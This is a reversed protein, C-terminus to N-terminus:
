LRTSKRDTEYGSWAPELDLDPRMGAFHTLLNRATTDTKGGQFEPLYATVPDAIRLKGQEVLKAISPTCAVVKTLSAADFITDVTMAERAPVLARNGYAKRHLIKGDQGAILVAGPILGDRVAKEVTEDLAASGSFTQAHACLALIFPWSYVRICVFLFRRNM